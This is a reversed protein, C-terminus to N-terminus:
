FHPTVLQKRTIHTLQVVSKDENVYLNPMMEAGCPRMKDYVKSAQGFFFFFLLQSSHAYTHIGM